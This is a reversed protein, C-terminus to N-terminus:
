FQFSYSLLTMRDYTLFYSLIVSKVYEKSNRAIRKVIREKISAKKQELRELRKEIVSIENDLEQPAEKQVIVNPRQGAKGLEEVKADLQRLKSMLGDFSYYDDVIKRIEERTKPIYSLEAQMSKIMQEQEMNKGYLYQLWKFINSTDRKVNVFSRKLLENMIILQKQSEVDKKEKKWFM